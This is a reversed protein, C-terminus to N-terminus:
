ATAGDGSKFDVVLRVPDSLYALRYCAVRSLGAAWQVTGESDEVKRLELMTKYGTILDSPGRDDTHNDAGHLTLLVGYSGKLTVIQGGPEQLFRAGSQTGLDTEAPEAGAFQITLRDYGVHTSVGVSVVNTITPAPGVHLAAGGLCNFPATSLSDPVAATSAASASAQGTNTADRSLRAALLAGLVIAAILISAIGAVWYADHPRPQPLQRATLERFPPAKVEAMYAEGGACQRYTM